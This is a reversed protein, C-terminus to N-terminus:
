MFAFILNAVFLYIGAQKQFDEPSAEALSDDKTVILEEQQEVVSSLEELNLEINVAASQQDEVKVEETDVAERVEVAQEIVESIAEVVQPKIEEATSVETTVETTSVAEMVIPEAAPIEAVEEVKEVVPAEVPIEAVEEVKEVVPAEVVEESVQVIEAESESQAAVEEVAAQAVEEPVPAVEESVEEPVQAVVEEAQVAEATAEECVAEEVVAEEVAAAETAVESVEQQAELEVSGSEGGMQVEAVNEASDEIAAVVDSVTDVINMTEKDSSEVEVVENAEIANQFPLSLEKVTEEQKPAPFLLQNEALFSPLKGVVKQRFDENSRAYVSTAAAGVVSAAAVFVVPNPGKNASSMNRKTAHNVVEQSKLFRKVVNSRIRLM